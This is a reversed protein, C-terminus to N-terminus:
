EGVLNRLEQVAERGIAEITGTLEDWTGLRYLCYDECHRSFPHEKNSIIIDQIARVATGDTTEVFPASYTESKKDYVTYMQKIMLAEM